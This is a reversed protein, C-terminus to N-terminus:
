PPNVSSPKYDILSGFPLLKAPCPEGFRLTYASPRGKWDRVNCCLCFYQIAYPWFQLPLGSKLLIARAGELVHRVSREARANNQPDGILAEDHPVGLDALCKKLEPSGDTYM